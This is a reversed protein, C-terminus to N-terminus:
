RASAAAEATWLAVEDLLSAFAQGFGQVAGAADHSSVPVSASFSRRALLTRGAPDSLEATLAIRASGPPSAADHFIEVLHTRLLLGGRVGSTTEVAGRFAGGLTVRAALLSALGRNPPETWSSFQYYAREGPRRSYIIEQTDYFSSATTAAVLLVADRQMAAPIIRTPAAELVFYRHAPAAGLGTCGALVAALALAPALLASRRRM